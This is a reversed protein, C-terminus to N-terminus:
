TLRALISKEFFGLESQLDLKSKVESAVGFLTAYVLYEDWVVVSSPPHKRLLTMDRLFRKFAMSRVYIGQGEPTFRGFIRDSVFLSGVVYIVVLMVFIPLFTNLKYEFLADEYTIVKALVATFVAGFLICFASFVKHGRKDFYRKLDYEEAVAADFSKILGKLEMPFESLEKSVKSWVLPKGFRAQKRFFDYVMREPQTLRDRPNGVFSLVVGKGSDLIRIHRRRVLDLLTAILTNRDTGGTRSSCLSGIVYPKLGEVPEREFPAAYDTKPERGYILYIVVPCLVMFLFTCIYFWTFLGNPAKFFDEYVTGGSVSALIDMSTAVVLSFVVGGNSLVLYLFLIDSKKLSM